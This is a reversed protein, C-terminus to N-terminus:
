DGKLLQPIACAFEVVETVKLVDGMAEDWKKGESAAVIHTLEDLHKDLLAKLKFLVQIRQNPPTNAWEPYAAKAAEIASEVVRKTCQPARHSVAGTSPDFCDMYKDTTSERFENNVFYKLVIPESAM